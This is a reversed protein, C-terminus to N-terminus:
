TPPILLLCEHNFETCLLNESFHRNNFELLQIDCADVKQFM